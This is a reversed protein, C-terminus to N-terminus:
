NWVRFGWISLTRECATDVLADAFSQREARFDDRDDEEWTDWDAPM